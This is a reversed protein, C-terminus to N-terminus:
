RTAPHADSVNNQVVSPAADLSLLGLREMALCLLFGSDLEGPQHAFNARRPHRHHNNQYGEGVVLFAALRNNTSDDDTDYTRYGRAHGLANVLWSKVVFDCSLVLGLAVGWLGTLSGLAYAGLGWAVPPLFWTFRLARPPINWPVDPAVEHLTPDNGTLRYLIRLYSAITTWVIGLLGHQTPSHPDGETDAHQHHLRHMTVWTKPDLGTVWFGTNMVIWRTIPALRVANHTLGRHYLISVYVSSVLNGVVFALLCQIAFSM